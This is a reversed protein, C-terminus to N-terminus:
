IKFVYNWAKKYHFSKTNTCKSLRSNLSKSYETRCMTLDISVQLMTLNGHLEVAKLGLLGLIICMRHCDKKTSLFLLCHDHFSQACLAPHYCLTFTHVDYLCQCSPSVGAVVAERDGEHKPRIRVFEQRLNYATDTNSDVFLKVPQNLSLRVLEKVQVCM